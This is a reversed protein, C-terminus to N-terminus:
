SIGSTGGVQVIGSSRMVEVPPSFRKLNMKMMNLKLRRLVPLLLFPVPLEFQVRTAVGHLLAHQQLAHQQQQL